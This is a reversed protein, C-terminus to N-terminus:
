SPDLMANVRCGIAESVALVDGDDLHTYRATSRLQAHGLLRGIMPLTESLGAAHSAYTHRLDHLRVDPLAALRRVNLWSRSVNNLPMHHIPDVFIRESASRRQFGSLVARGEEGLWVTRPGTKADHLRLREGKVDGWHLQLIESSRCGTLLILRIAAAHMPRRGDEQHLAAGLRALEQRSLFRECRRARNTRVARCPDSGDPRYGWAEAKRFMAKLIAFARNAGGPGIRETTRRFWDQVHAHTIQDVGLSAFAGELNLRRHMRHTRRTSPKWQPEMRTWYEELFRDFSPTSWIDLKETAPDGGMEARALVQRARKRATALGLVAASGLTVTRLRGQMRTQVVWVRKGSEYHRLGLGPPDGLWRTTRAPDNDAQVDEEVASM